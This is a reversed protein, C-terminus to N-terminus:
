KLRWSSFAKEFRLFKSRDIRIERYYINRNMGKTDLSSMQKSESFESFESYEDLIEKSTSYAEEDILINSQASKISMVRALRDIPHGVFDEVQRLLRKTTGFGIAGRIKFPFQESGAVSSMQDAVQDMLIIAEFLPRLNPSAILVADGIEKLCKLENNPALITRVLSFFIEARIYGEKPGQSLRFNSSQVLDVMGWFQTADPLRDYTSELADREGLLTAQITTTTYEIRM